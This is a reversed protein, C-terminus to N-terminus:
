FERASWRSRLRDRVDYDLGHGAGVADAQIDGVSVVEHDCDVGFGVVPFSSSDSIAGRDQHHPWPAFWRRLRIAARGGLM